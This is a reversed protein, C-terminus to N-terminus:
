ELNKDYQVANAVAQRAEPYPDLAKLIATRLRIWEPSVLINIQPSRNLRGESEALLAIIRTRERIGILADRYKEKEEAKNQIRNTDKIMTGLQSMLNEADAIEPANHAKHLSEPLHSHQHRKVSDRSVGWIAGITRTSQGAVLAMDISQRNTHSCITCTRSM